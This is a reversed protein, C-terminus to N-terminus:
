PSAGPRTLRGETAAEDPRRDAVTVFPWGVTGSGVEERAWAEEALRPWDPDLGLDKCIMAVLESAPRSLVGGYIDDRDLREATEDMLREVEAPDDHESDAVREVIRAIHVKRERTEQRAASAALYATHSDGAQLEKILKAQLMLSLRVARAVRGFGTCAQAAVEGCADKAGDKITLALALGAEALESLMTIQRELLPRGWDASTAPDHKEPTVAATMESCIM